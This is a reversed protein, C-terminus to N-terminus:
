LGNVEKRGISVYKFGHQKMQSLSFINRGDLIIPNKLKRKILDLDPNRFEPWETMIM